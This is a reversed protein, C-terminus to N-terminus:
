RIESSRDGDDRESRGVKGRGSTKPASAKSAQPASVAAPRSVAPQSQVSRVPPAARPSPGTPSSRQVQNIAASRGGHAPAVVAARSRGSMVPSPAPRPREISDRKGGGARDNVFRPQQVVRPQAGTQRIRIPAEIVAPRHGDAGVPPRRGIGRQQLDQEARRGGDAGNDSFRMPRRTGPDYKDPPSRRLYRDPDTDRTQVRIPRQGRHDPRDDNNRYERHDRDDRNNRDHRRDGGRHHDDDGRDLRHSRYPERHYGHHLPSSYRYGFGYSPGYGDYGGYNLSFGLRGHRYPSHPYRGYFGFGGRYYPYSYFGHSYYPGYYPGYYRDDYRREAPASYYDGQGHESPYYYGTRYPSSACGALVILAGVPLLFRVMAAKM